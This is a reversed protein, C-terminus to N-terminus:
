HLDDLAIEILDNQTDYVIGLLLLWTAEVPAGLRPSGIEARQVIAIKLMGDLFFRWTTQRPQTYDHISEGTTSRNVPVPAVFTGVGSFSFICAMM